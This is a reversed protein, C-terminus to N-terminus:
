HLSIPNSSSSQLASSICPEIQTWKPDGKFWRLVMHSKAHSFGHSTGVNEFPGTQSSDMVDM